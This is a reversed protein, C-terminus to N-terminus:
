GPLGYAVAMGGSCAPRCACIEIGGALSGALISRLPSPPPLKKEGSSPAPDGKVVPATAAAVSAM